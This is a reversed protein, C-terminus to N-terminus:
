LEGKLLKNLRQKYEEQTPEEEPRKVEEQRAEKAVGTLNEVEQKQKIGALLIDEPEGVPLNTPATNKKGGLAIARMGLSMNGRDDPFLEKEIIDKNEETTKEIIVEKKEKIEEKDNEKEETETTKKNEELNKQDITLDEEKETNKITERSEEEDLGIKQDDDQAQEKKHITTRPYLLNWEHYMKSMHSKQQNSVGREKLGKQMAKVFIKSLKETITNIMIALLAGMLLSLTGLIFVPIKLVEETSIKQTLAIQVDHDRKYYRDMTRVLTKLMLALAEKSEEKTGATIAFNIVGSDGNRKVTLNKQWQTATKKQQKEIMAEAFVRTQPIVRYNEVIQKANRTARESKPVILIEASSVHQRFMDVSAVFIAITFVGTLIITYPSLIKKQM